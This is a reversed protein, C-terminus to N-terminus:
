WRFKLNAKRIQGVSVQFEEGPSIELRLTEGAVSLLKGEVHKQGEVVEKFSLKVDEGLVREFDRLKKLPREIGPSSVELTYSQEPMLSREDLQESLSRSVFECDGHSVGGQKDIYVRLLRQPGGGKLEVDVLEVGRAEAAQECLATVSLLLEEREIAPM